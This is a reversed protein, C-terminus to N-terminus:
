RGSIVLSMVVSFITLSFCDDINNNNDIIPVNGFDVRIFKLTKNIM